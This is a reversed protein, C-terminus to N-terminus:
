TKFAKVISYTHRESLDYLNQSFSLKFIQNAWLGPGMIGNIIPPPRSILYRLLLLQDLASSVLIGYDKAHRSALGSDDACSRFWLKPITWPFSYCM